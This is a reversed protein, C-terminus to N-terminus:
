PAFRRVGHALLLGFSFRRLLQGQIQRFQIVLPDLILIHHQDSGEGAPHQGDGLVVPVPAIRLVVVGFGDGRPGQCQVADGPLGPVPILGGHLNGVGM